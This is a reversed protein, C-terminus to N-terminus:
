RGRLGSAVLGEFESHEKIYHAIFPCLPVVELGERAADELAAAALRSGFGQGERPEEVETHTFTIRGERRRYAALGVVRGGLRLEYRSAEPVHVVQAAEPSGADPV